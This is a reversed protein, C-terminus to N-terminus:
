KMKSLLLNVKEQLYERPRSINLFKERSRAGASLSVEAKPVCFFKALVEILAKNAKDKEPPSQVDVILAEATAERVKSNPASPRVLVRVICGGDIARFIISQM